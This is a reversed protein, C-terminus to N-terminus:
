HYFESYLFRRRLGFINNKHVLGQKQCKIAVFMLVLLFKMKKSNKHSKFELTVVFCDIHSMWFAHFVFEFPWRLLVYNMIEVFNLSPSWFRLDLKFLTMRIEFLFKSFIVNKRNWNKRFCVEYLILSYIVNFHEKVYDRLTM